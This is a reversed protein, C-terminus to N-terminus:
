SGSGAAGAAVAAVVEAALPRAAAVDDATADVEDAARAVAVDSDVATSSTDSSTGELSRVRLSSAVAEIAPAADVAILAGWAERSSTRESVARESVAIVAASASAACAIAFKLASRFRLALMKSGSM